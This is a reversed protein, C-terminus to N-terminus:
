RIPADRRIQIKLKKLEHSLLKNEKELKRKDYALKENEQKLRQIEIRLDM